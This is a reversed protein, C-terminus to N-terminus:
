LLLTTAATVFRYLLKTKLILVRFIIYDITMIYNEALDLFSTSQMNGHLMTKRVIVYTNNM